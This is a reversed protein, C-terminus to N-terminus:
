SFCQTLDWNAHQLTASSERQAQSAYTHTYPDINLSLILILRNHSLFLWCFSAKGRQTQMTHTHTHIHSYTLAHGQKCDKRKVERMLLHLKEYHRPPNEPWNNRSPQHADFSGVPFLTCHIAHGSYSLRCPRIYPHAWM